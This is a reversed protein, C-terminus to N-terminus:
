KFFLGHIAMIACCAGVYPSVREGIRSLKWLFGLIGERKIPSGDPPLPPDFIAPRLERIYTCTCIGLLLVTLLSSLDFLASM